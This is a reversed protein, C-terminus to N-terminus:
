PSSEKGTAPSALPLEVWFIAGRGAESEVGVNGNMREVVKRVIALGIGTGEYGENLRQFMKFLRRHAYEPIGIGNDRVWIRAMGDRRETHVRVEPRVGPAVFKVANGLLNAFCQTLLAESGVVMPLESEVRVDAKEAQLDPYTEIIGRVLTSLNVPELTIDQHAFKTYRLAHQILIDLRNAALRIRRSYDHRQEPTVQSDDMLEVFANMARLPARMDHVMAYSIHQLEGIMEQLKATREAVLGELEAKSRQLVRQAERQETFDRFVLVVGFIPGGAQRIPAASDDIPIERGDRAVLLTHNALGVVMGLRLVKDVPNEASNRTDENIIKFVEPLARGGADASKWGTLQEAEGNLFTVRGTADTVIVADGISALTTALLEKERILAERATVLESIDQIIKSAGIIEGDADKLPSVSVAVPIHRGDKALRITELREIPHGQGLRDLIHGEESLRDPPLLVTIPKGIIEDARYGFLREASANWTQIVGALTKTFIADGSHEVIAALRASARQAKRQETVDRFVLVVGFLPGAPERIPAASDDIPIDTGDRRILLTHNALGVVTGHRLVKEVPNEVTQRTQENIIRFVEPLPHGNAEASKWGTLREAEGNLFTVGGQADTVVVGDGISALTTALLEKQRSIELIALERQHLAHFLKRAVWGLFVLNVLAVGLLTEARLEEMRHARRVAEDFATQEQAQMQRIEARLDAMTQEGTNLRVVALAANLGGSQRLQITYALEALKQQTLALTREVNERPLDGTAAAQRLNAEAQQVRALGDRYPQLYPAEGALLFGRQGTETDRLISLYDALQNLRTLRTTMEEEARVRLLGVGYNFGMSAVLLVAMALFWIALINTGPKM